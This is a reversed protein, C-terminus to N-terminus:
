LFGIRPRTRYDALKPKGKGGGWKRVASIWEKLTKVTQDASIHGWFLKSGVYIINEGSIPSDKNEPKTDDITENKIYGWDGPVWDTSRVGYDEVLGADGAAGRAIMTTAVKCPIAYQEPNLQLDMMAETRKTEDRVALEGKTDVEWYAPNYKTDTVGAAFKYQKAFGPWAHGTYYVVDARAKVHAELNSIASEEDLGDVKFTRPSSLLEIVIEQELGAGKKSGLSYIGDRQSPALGVRTFYADIPPVAEIKRQVAPTAEGSAQQVVHGLEHAILERGASSSPAYRGAGFVVDTGVTYAQANLAAASHAATSGAHVRVRGFDHGLRPELEARLSPDLPEGASRLADSVVPPLSAARAATPLSRVPLGARSAAARDARQEYADSPHSVLRRVQFRYSM